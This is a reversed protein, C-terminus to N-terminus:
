DEYIENETVCVTKLEEVLSQLADIVRPRIDGGVLVLMLEKGVPIIGSALWARVYFIGPLKEAKAVAERVKDADFSFDVASVTRENEEGFRVKGKPTSRVVGTHFLYMGCRSAAPDLAAEKLWQDLSPRM